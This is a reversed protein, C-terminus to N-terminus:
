YIATSGGQAPTVVVRFVHHRPTLRKMSMVPRSGDYTVTTLNGFSGTLQAGGFNGGSLLSRSMTTIRESNVFQNQFSWSNQLATSLNPNDVPQATLYDDNLSGAVSAVQTPEGSGPLKFDGLSVLTVALAVTVMAPVVKRWGIVPANRPLYAKTRTEKYRVQAIRNLLKVNFDGPLAFGPMEQGGAKLSELLSAEKRCDACSSLHERVALSQRGPVDDRFSIASLLSRVRRCRM